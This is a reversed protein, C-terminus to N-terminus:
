PELVVPLGLERIGCVLGGRPALYLLMFYTVGNKPEAWKTRGSTAAFGIIWGEESEEADRGLEGPVSVVIWGSLGAVKEHSPGATPGSGGDLM